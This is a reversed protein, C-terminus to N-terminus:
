TMVWYSNLFYGLLAGALSCILNTTGKTGIGHEELIGFLSDVISGFFGCAGILLATTPSFKFLVLGVLGIILGGAMSTFLGLISIAGSKGQKVPKLTELSIPSGALVGLESAFKDATIAAVSALYPIPGFSSVGFILLTPILGNSLVNEWSREHEYIGMERKSRHEYKTVATSFALFSLIVVLYRWDGILFIIAGMTFALILGQKDLMIAM